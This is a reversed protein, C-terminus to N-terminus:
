NTQKQEWDQTPEQTHKSINRVQVGAQKGGTMKSRQLKLKKYKEPAKPNVETTERLKKQLKM